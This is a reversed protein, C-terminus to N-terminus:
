LLEFEQAVKLAESAPVMKIDGYFASNPEHKRAYKEERILIRAAKLTIREAKPAIKELAAQDAPGEVSFLNYENRFGWPYEVYYKKM